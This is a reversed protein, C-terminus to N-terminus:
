NDITLSQCEESLFNKVVEPHHPSKSFLYDLKINIKLRNSDNESIGYFVKKINSYIIASFCMICPECTAYLICNDLNKNKSKKGASAIAKIEAHASANFDVRQSNFAQAIIQGNKVIVVGCKFPEQSKEAEKIALRMFDTDSM